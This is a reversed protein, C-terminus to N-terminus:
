RVYMCADGGRKLVLVCYVHRASRCTFLTCGLYQGGTESLRLGCVYSYSIASANEDEFPFM